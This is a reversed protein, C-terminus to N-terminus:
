NFQKKDYHQLGVTGSRIVVYPVHIAHRGSLHADTSRIIEMRKTVNNLIRKRYFFVKKKAVCTHVVCGM